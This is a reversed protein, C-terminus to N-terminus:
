IRYQDVFQKLKLGLENLNKASSETQRTSVVNEKSARKISEMASTVQDIGMVQQQSSVAIQVAAQAANAVADALTRISDGAQISQAAGVQVAKAGQEAAMVVSATAKQIDGLIARVQETARKSQDALSKVEQAVVAFGKGQEGAKAAEISANVALLNSQDAIDNVTVIIEGISKSQESLRIVSEGVFEMQEQIRNITVITQDVAERGTQSVETSKQAMESVTKAKQNSVEVTKKVESMTVTVETVSTATETASAAVQTTAALIQSASSGLTDAVATMERLPASISRTLFLGVVFIVVFASFIGGVITLNTASVTAEAEETREELLRNEENEMKNILSRIEDMIRKGRETLVIEEAAEFGKSRRLEITEQLYALEVAVLSELTEFSAQQKPDVILDSLERMHGPLNRTAQEYPELFRELGTIIYGRQGTEANILMSHVREMDAFVQYTHTVWQSAEMSTHLGRNAVFGIIILIVLGLGFGLGLKARVTWRM